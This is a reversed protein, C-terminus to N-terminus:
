GALGAVPFSSSTGNFMQIQLKGFKRGKRASGHHVLRYTGPLLSNPVDFRVSVEQYTHKDECSIRTEPDADVFVTTWVTENDFRQVELYSGGIKLDNKLDAGVFTAVAVDGPHLPTSGNWSEQIIDGFDAGAPPSELELSNLRKWFREKLEDSFDEPEPGRPSPENNLMADAIHAFEQLYADLQYPGYITSGGEYRQVQYEEYTTTYDAYENSLGAVVVTVNPESESFKGRLMAKLRRGAMTTMETPVAAIVLPGIKVLQIPLISPAWPHPFSMNGTPLLITKPHQCAVAEPTTKHLFNTVIPWLPNNSTANQTFDFMGSGDITGAAFADGLAADCLTGKLAGTKWDRVELHPMQVYTHRYSIKGDITRMEADDADLLLDLARKHRQAIIRTSDFMDVGPGFAACPENRQTEGRVPLDVPCTSHDFDCPKGTNLCHPGLINGTVDGLNASAFAAVVGPREREVLSSAYGKSDSSVLRNTNNMSTPHVAFWTILGQLLSEGNEYVGVAFFDTDVNDDGYAAREQEPNALYASPSRNISANRLVTAGIKVRRGRGLALQKEVDEHARTLATAVGNSMADITQPVWGSGAFQFIMHQLFGSPGSHTHTGSVITNTENYLEPMGVRELARKKLVHGVMGADLSVFASRSGVDDVFVFARAFLRLHLGTGVQSPKAMGFLQIGTTPGTADARGVGVYLAQCCNLALAVITGFIRRRAMREM